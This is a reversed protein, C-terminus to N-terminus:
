FGFPLVANVARALLRHASTPERFHFKHVLSFLRRELPVSCTLSVRPKHTHMVHETVLIQETSVAQCDSCWYIRCRYSTLGAKIAGPCIPAHLLFHQWRVTNLACHPCRLLFVFRPESQDSNSVATVPTQAPKTYTDDVPKSDYMSCLLESKGCLM